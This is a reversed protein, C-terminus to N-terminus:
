RPPSFGARAIWVSVSGKGVIEPTGIKEINGRSKGAKAELITFLTWSSTKPREKARLTSFHLIFVNQPKNVVKLRTLGAVVIRVGSCRGRGPPLLGAGIAQVSHLM